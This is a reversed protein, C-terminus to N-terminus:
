PGTQAAKRDSIVDDEVADRPFVHVNEVHYVAPTVNFRLHALERKSVMTFRLFRNRKAKAASKTIASRAMGGAVWRSPWCDVLGAGAEAVVRLPRGGGMFQVASSSWWFMISWSPM